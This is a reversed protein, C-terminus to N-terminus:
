DWYMEVSATDFLMFFTVSVIWSYYCGGVAIFTITMAWGTTM